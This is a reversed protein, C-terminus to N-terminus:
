NKSRTFVGPDQENFYVVYDGPPLISVDITAGEGTLIMKGGADYIKYSAKRSLKLESKSSKPTFTVPEPYFHFDLESSYLYNGDPSEYKVRYKNAGEDVKPFVNYTAGTYNGQAELEDTQEWIGLKFKEVKYIGGAKEGRTKWNITTDNICVSQFSFMSYYRIADPNIIIPKVQPNHKIALSVPAFLDVGKFDLKIATRNLQVNQPKGNIVIEQISFTGSEPIYPNQIFLTKGQFVGTLHTESGAQALGYQIFLMSLVFLVRPM